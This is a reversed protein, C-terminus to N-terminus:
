FRELSEGGGEGGWTWNMQKLSYKRQKIFQVAEINFNTIFSEFFGM